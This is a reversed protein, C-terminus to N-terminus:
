GYQAMFAEIEAENETRLRYMAYRGVKRCEMVVPHHIALDSARAPGRHSLWVGDRTAHSDLEWSWWWIKEPQDLMAMVVCAMGTPSKKRTKSKQWRVKEDFANEISEQNHQKM